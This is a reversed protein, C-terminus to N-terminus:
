IVNVTRKGIAVKVVILRENVRKVEIVSEVWRKAVLVEVRTTGQNCGAWFFMSEWRDRVAVGGGVSRCM